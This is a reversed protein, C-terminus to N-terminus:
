KVSFPNKYSGHYGKTLLLETMTERVHVEAPYSLEKM